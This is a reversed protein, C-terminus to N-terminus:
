DATRGALRRVVITAVMSLLIAGCFWYIGHLAYVRLKTAVILISVVFVDLMSWRGLAELRHLWITRVVSTMPRFWIWILVLLKLIPFVFSFFFVVTALLFEDDEWLGVIGTWVSYETELFFAKEVRILPTSLGFYLALSAAALLIPVDYRRRHHVALPRSATSM